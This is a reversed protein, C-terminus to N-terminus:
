AQDRCPTGDPIQCAQWLEQHDEGFWSEPLYLRRNLLTAGKRSAYGLFVGAQCNDKKGTNGCWQPAVGASHQGHKPFDSGDIILVGDDESLTEEVLRQHEALLADDDWRGEGIFQQLARVQREAHPGVGLLRLAMAEVNKRPVDAILLGRLYVAAWERQERRYFFPAFHQAYAALEEALPTVEEPALGRVPLLAGLRPLDASVDLVTSM